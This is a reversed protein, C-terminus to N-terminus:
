GETQGSGEETSGNPSSNAGSLAHVGADESKIGSEESKVESTTAETAEHIVHIPFEAVTRWEAESDAERVSLRILTDGAMGVRIGIFSHRVRHNLKYMQFKVADQAYVEGSPSVMEVREEFYKDVENDERRWFALAMWQLPIAADEPIKEGLNVSLAELVSIMSVQKEAEDIIVRECPVFFILKPM